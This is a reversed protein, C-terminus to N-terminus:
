DFGISVNAKRVQTVVKKNLKDLLEEDNIEVSSTLNDIRGQVIGKVQNTATGGYMAFADAIASRVSTHIKKDIMENIEEQHDAIYKNFRESLQEQTLVTLEAM